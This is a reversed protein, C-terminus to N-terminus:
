SLNHVQKSVSVSISEQQRKTKQKKLWQGQKRVFDIVKKNQIQIIERYRDIVKIVEALDAISNVREELGQDEMENNQIISKTLEKKIIEKTKEKKYKKTHYFGIFFGNVDFGLLLIPSSSFVSKLFRGRFM